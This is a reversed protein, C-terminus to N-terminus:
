KSFMEAMREYSFMAAVVGPRLYKSTRKNEKDKRAYSAMDKIKEAPFSWATATPELHSILELTKDAKLLRCDERAKAKLVEPVFFVLAICELRHARSLELKNLQNWAARVSKRMEVTLKSYEHIVPWCMKGANGLYFPSKM